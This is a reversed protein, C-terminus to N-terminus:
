IQEKRLLPLLEYEKAEIDLDWRKLFEDFEASKQIPVLIVRNSLRTIGQINKIGREFMVKNSNTLQKLSYTYLKVPQIGYIEHLYKGEKVSYGEKILTPFIPKHMDEITLIQVDAKPISSTIHPKIGKNMTHLICAIDIDGPDIKGKTVSGFIIIDFIDKNKLLGKLKKAINKM